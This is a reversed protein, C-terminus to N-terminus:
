PRRPRVKVSPDYFRVENIVRGRPGVRYWVDAGEKFSQYRLADNFPQQDTGWYKTTKEVTYEVDKAETGTGSRIVIVGKDSDVRVIKGRVDIIQTAPDYFRVENVVKNDDGMRFWVDSGAKFGRYRLADTFPQQDAAWYKTTKGVTYEVEKVDTGTGTQVVIVSRDPDVRVVRGRVDRIRDRVPEDAKLTGGLVVLLGMGLCMLTRKM